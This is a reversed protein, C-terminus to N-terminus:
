TPSITKPDDSWDSQFESESKYTGFLYGTGVNWNYYDYDYGIAMRSRILINFKGKLNPASYVSNWKSGRLFRWSTEESGDFHGKIEPWGEVRDLLRTARTAPPAPADTEPKSEPTTTHEPEKPEEPPDPPPEPEPTNSRTSGM